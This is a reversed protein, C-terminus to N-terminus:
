KKAEPYLYNLLRHKSKIFNEKDLTHFIDINNESIKKAGFLDHMRIVKKNEKRTDFYETELKLIEFFIEKMILVILIPIEFQIGPTCIWSGTTASRTDIDYIRIVGVRHDEKTFIFYYELGKAERDKYQKIWEIQDSLNHSTKNIFRGLLPDIRLNLIYEADGVDVFRLKLGYRELTFDSNLKM